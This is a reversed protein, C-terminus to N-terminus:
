IDKVARNILAEVRESREKIIKIAESLRIDANRLGDKVFEKAFANLATQLGTYYGVPMKLEQGKTKEGESLRVKVLAYCTDTVEIAYTDDLRIM